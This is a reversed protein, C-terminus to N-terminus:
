LRTCRKQPNLIVSVHVLLTSFIKTDHVPVKQDGDSILDDSSWRPPSTKLMVAFPCVDVAVDISSAVASTAPKTATNVTSTFPEAPLLINVFDDESVDPVDYEQLGLLWKGGDPFLNVESCCHLYLFLLLLLLLFCCFCFCFFLVFCFLFLFLCVVVVAVVVGLFCFFLFCVFVVVFCFVHMKSVWFLMHGLMNLCRANRKLPHATYNMAPTISIVLQTIILM